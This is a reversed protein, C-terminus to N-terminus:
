CCDHLGTLGAFGESYTRAADEATAKSKLEKLVDGVVLVLFSSVDCFFLLLVKDRVALGVVDVRAIGRVGL